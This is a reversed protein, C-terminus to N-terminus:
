TKKPTQRDIAMDYVMIIRTLSRNMTPLTPFHGGHADHQEHGDAWTFHLFMNTIYIYYLVSFLCSCIVDM